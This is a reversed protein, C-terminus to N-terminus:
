ENIHAQFKLLFFDKMEVMSDKFFENDKEAMKEDIAKEKQKECVMKWDRIYNKFFNEGEKL